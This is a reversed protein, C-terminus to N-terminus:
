GAFPSKSPNALSAMLLFGAMDAGWSMETKMRKKQSRFALSIRAAHLVPVLPVPLLNPESLAKTLDAVPRLVAVAAM